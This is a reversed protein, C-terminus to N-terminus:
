GDAPELAHEYRLAGFVCAQACQPEGDCLDCKLPVESEGCVFLSAYPCADVCTQCAVCKEPDICWLRTRDSEVFAENPCAEACFAEECQRCVDLRHLGGFLDIEVRVRALVPGSLGAREQACTIACNLCGTCCAPDFVLRMKLRDVM